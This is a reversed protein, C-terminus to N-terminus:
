VKSCVLLTIEDYILTKGIANHCELILHLGIFVAHFISSMVRLSPMAVSSGDNHPLHIKGVFMCSGDAETTKPLNEM